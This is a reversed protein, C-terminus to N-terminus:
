DCGGRPGGIISDGFLRNCWPGRHYEDSEPLPRTIHFKSKVTWIDKPNEITPGGECSVQGSSMLIKIPYPYRRGAAGMNIDAHWFPEELRVQDVGGKYRIVHGYYNEAIVRAETANIGDEVVVKALKEKLDQVVRKDSYRPDLSLCGFTLLFLLFVYRKMAFFHLSVTVMHHRTYAFNLCYVSVILDSTLTGEVSVEM